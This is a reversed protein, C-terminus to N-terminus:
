LDDRVGEKPLKFYFIAGDNIRGEAWVEGHHRQVIRRVIALGVGNGEYDKISHLRQFTGFLKQIYTMDFGIGNDKLSYVVYDDLETFYIEIKPELTKNTFKVANAILNIWVQKLMSADGHCPPLTAINYTLNQRPTIKLVEEIASRALSDMDVTATHMSSRSLRSFGLLDDILKGMRLTNDQIVELLRHGEDDFFQGYEEFILKSYGNIARLPARLDHSVSYSFAELERNAHELDITREKVRKELIEEQLKKETIDRATTYVIEGCPVSKWEIWRYSDDKCRYRNEFKIILQQKKLNMIVKKTNQVDDPHVLDLFKMQQLEDLTWGFTLVWEPNLRLFNGNIDAICLLDLSNTFFADIEKTRENLQNEAKRQETVDVFISVFRKYEPSFARVKFYKDFVLSNGEFEIKGGELAIKGYNSIWMAETDPIIELVTKGIIDKSKLGTMKEFAPNVALFRYDFPNGVEDVIIEHYAFGDLMSDFLLKYRSESEELLKESVKQSTIDEFHELFHIPTENRSDKLLATNVRVWLLSKDKCIFRKEYQIHDLTGSLMKDYYEKSKTVDDPHTYDLISELFLDEKTYGLMKIASKSVILFQLSLDIMCNGMSSHEFAREFRNLGKQLLDNREKLERNEQELLLLRTAEL